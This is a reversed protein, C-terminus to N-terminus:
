SVLPEVPELVFEHSGAGLRQTSRGPLELDADVDVPVQVRVVTESASRRYECTVPGYPTDIRARVEGFPSAVDPALTVRRYGPEVARLGAVQRYLWDDVCGFAYHNHSMIGPHGDTDVLRWVEWVTTAGRDIQYLWSPATDQLLLRYAIDARGIDVLVDMLHPVSLFGTDLHTGAEDILAVLHEAVGARREDPVLGFALALVYTGQMHVTLRDDPLLYEVAFAERIRGHLDYMEFATPTDGLIEATRALNEVSRAFFMAAVIEGTRESAINLTSLVNDDDVTSPALWDGHHFGTNWLVRQRELTAADADRHRAPVGAEAQRRCYAVWRQMAEYNDELFRVDGYREYLALPVITIADGWGSGSDAGHGNSVFRQFSPTNPAVITIQGDAFQEARVNALWRDLFLNVRMNNPAAGVFVQADGTYGERERQPCDTPISVFNGRQSWVVNEHLRNVRADDTAFGGVQDLDSSVVVGTVDEPRLTGPYGTVRVYRFGHFTFTPEFTERGGGALVWVDTQDKNTGLVDVYFNGDRDLAETHELRIETGSPGEASIRIRGAINQRLDIVTEGRPTILVAPDTIERVRRVPEGIFPVLGATSGGVVVSRSWAADDFDVGDWGPQESRGDFREGIFIDSYRIGGFSSVSSRDSVALPEGDGELQWYVALRDGYNASHGAMSTRGAWWGDALRVAVVNRGPRLLASVDYAFFSLRTPHADYGPCFLDDTVTSGNIRVEFLGHATIYLRARAPVEDVEFVQRLLPVPHLREDPTGIPGGVVERIVSEQRPEVWSARWDRPDLISTEFGAEAWTGPEAGDTWTRVRWRYRRRSGLELGPVEVFASDRSAVRGTSGVRGGDEDDVEIEYASQPAPASSIWGFRPRPTWLATPAALTEVTLSTPASM